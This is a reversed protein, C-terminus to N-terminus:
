CCLFYYIYMNEKRACSYESEDYWVTMSCADNGICHWQWDNANKTINSKYAEPFCANTKVPKRIALWDSLCNSYIKWTSAGLTELKEKWFHFCYYRSLRYLKSNLKEMWIEYNYNVNISYTLLENMQTHIFFM